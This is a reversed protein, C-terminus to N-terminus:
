SIHKYSKPLTGYALLSIFAYAWLGMLEYADVAVKM